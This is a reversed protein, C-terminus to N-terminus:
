VGSSRYKNHSKKVKELWDALEQEDGNTLVRKIEDLQTQYAEIQTLVATGNTLLIDLLMQPDSGALRTTSRFGSASVQWLQDDNQAAATQMLAASVLYPLHSTAAVMNDHAQSPLLLPNAGITEIIEYAIATLQPTTRGNECLVFTQGRYLDAAAAAFGATEKGCMPHGGIAAFSGPLAEMVRGIEAKTSGLDMVLCGDPRVTPLQTLLRLITRVPTALIVLEAEKVGEALDGTVVDALEQAATRTEPNSDIITLHALFPRLALALSGGMLGLGVICVREVQM